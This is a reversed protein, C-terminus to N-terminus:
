DGRFKRLATLVEDCWNLRAELMHVGQRLALYELLKKRSQLRTKKLLVEMERYWQLREERERRYKDVQEINTKKSVLYGFIFKALLEDRARRVEVPQKLWELLEQKGAPTIRYVVRDPRGEQREVTKEALGEAVFKKLTPYITGYSEHWFDRINHEVVKKIDYGSMPEWDLLGLFVYRSANKAPM